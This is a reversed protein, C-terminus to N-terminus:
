AKISGATLGEVFSRMTLAFLVLLPLSALVYGAFLQGYEIRYEGRLFALGIPVTFMKRSQITVLPWIYSNWTGLINTIAVTGLIPRSLPLVIRWYVTFEGAGDIRASEFLEAPLSAFFSRMLFVAFVQGGAIAPLILVGYTNVLGLRNVLLYAPILTLVGPVMLLSLIAFWIIEKGWFRLRAFAYASLSAFFLVGFVVSASVIVSNTLYPRVKAWAYVYNQWQAPRPLGIFNLALQANTKFSTLVMFLFPFLTLGLLMTLVLYKPAEEMIVGLKRGRM